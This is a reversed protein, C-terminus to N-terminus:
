IDEYFYYTTHVNPSVAALPTTLATPMHLKM